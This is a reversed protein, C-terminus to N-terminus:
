LSVAPGPGALVRCCSREAADAWRLSGGPEPHPQRPGWLWGLGRAVLVHTRHGRSASVCRSVAPHHCAARNRAIVLSPKRTPLHYLIQREFCSVHTQDRPHSPERSFSIAVRELFRAQSIGHISSGPLSCDKPDCLSPYLKSVLCYCCIM